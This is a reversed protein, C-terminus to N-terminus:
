RKNSKRRPNLEFLMPYIVDLNLPNKDFEPQNDFTNNDLYVDLQSLAQAIPHNPHLPHDQTLDDDKIIDVPTSFRYEKSKGNNHSRWPIWINNPAPEEPISDIKAPFFVNVVSNIGQLYKLDTWLYLSNKIVCLGIRPQRITHGLSCRGTVIITQPPTTWKPSHHAASPMLRVLQSVVHRFNDSNVSKILEKTEESCYNKSFNEKTLLTQIANENWM